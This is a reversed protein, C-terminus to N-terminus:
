ESEDNSQEHLTVSLVELSLTKLTRTATTLLSFPLLM